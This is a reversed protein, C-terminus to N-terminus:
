FRFVPGVSARAYWSGRVVKLWRLDVAVGVRRSLWGDAGGGVSVVGDVGAFQTRGGGSGSGAVAGALVSMYPSVRAPYRLKVGGMVDHVAVSFPSRVCPRGGGVCQVIDGSFGHNYFYGGGLAVARHVSGWAEGGVGWSVGGVGSFYNLGSLIGLTARHGAHQEPHNASPAQLAPVSVTPPGMVARLVEDSVGSEKLRSLDEATLAVRSPRDAVWRAIVDAPVGAKAMRTIGSVIEAREPATNELRWGQQAVLGGSLALMLMLQM